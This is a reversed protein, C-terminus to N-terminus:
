KEKVDQVGIILNKLETLTEKTRIKDGTKLMVGDNTVAAISEVNILYEVCSDYNVETYSYFSHNHVYEKPQHITIFKSNDKESYSPVRGLVKKVAENYSIGEENEFRGNVVEGIREENDFDLYYYYGDKIDM